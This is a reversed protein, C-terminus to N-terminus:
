RFYKALDESTMQVITPKGQPCLFPTNCQMLQNVIQQAEEITLRRAMSVAARGAALAILRTQEQRWEGGEEKARLRDVIDRLLKPVDTNGFISPIADVLFTYTGFEKIAIGLTNMRGLHERLIAAEFPTADWTFPILLNQVALPAKETNSLKEFIIRCHASRQNVLCLSDGAFKELPKPDIIIFGPITAFVTPTLPHPSGQVPFLEQQAPTNEVEKVPPPRSFATMERASPFVPTFAPMSRPESRQVPEFSPSYQSGSGQFPLPEPMPLTFSPSEHLQDRGLGQLAEEVGQLILQKIMQEQRLRVERKQPHVNVDVLSGPLSLHLVYVPHRNTPLMPGYGDRVGYSVLPSFVCRKNIFLYQGTRNHRTYSPFGIFGELSIDGERKSLPSVNEFLDQGLVSKVREGLQETFSSAAPMNSALLTEQNSILQFKIAPYGLALVTLMKLIEQVDYVPSKQFKKRVPVNFFLSKVEITTGPSCAAPSCKIIQGGDVLVMTGEQASSEGHPNTLLMFKSISAISPIAEGRFGMTYLAQLDDVERMKSTAHRELCLLADDPSMGCGNDTIRIMQRGGGKIEVCISTAGADISNEVLEKVVSAANEIVEGAAIKNITLDSLVRIKSQMIWSSLM